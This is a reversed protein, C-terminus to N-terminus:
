GWFTSVMSNQSSALQDTETCPWNQTNSTLPV